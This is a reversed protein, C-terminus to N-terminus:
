HGREIGGPNKALSAICRSSVDRGGERGSFTFEDGVVEQGDGGM